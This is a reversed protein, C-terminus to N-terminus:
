WDLLWVKNSLGGGVEGGAVYIKNKVSIIAASSVVQNLKGVSWTDSVTNYIDFIDSGIWSPTFFVIENSKLVAHFGSKSQSLCAFTSAQTSIDRIEVKNSSTKQM